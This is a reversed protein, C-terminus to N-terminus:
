IFLIATWPIIAVAFYFLALIAVASHVQRLHLLIGLLAAVIKASLLGTGEGFRLMLGSVIPNAEVQIGFTIVGVYTLVGDFCQTLLFLVLVVDGLRSRLAASNGMKPVETGYVSEGVACGIAGM